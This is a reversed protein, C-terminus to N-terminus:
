FAPLLLILWKKHGVTKESVFHVPVCVWVWVLLARAWTCVDCECVHYLVKM